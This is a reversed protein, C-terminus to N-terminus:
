WKRRLLAADPLVLNAREALHVLEVRSHVKLKHRISTVHRDVTKVSRKLRQAISAMSLPERLLALVELERPTLVDLPGLDIFRSEHVEYEGQEAIVASQGARTAMLVTPGNSNAQGISVLCSEYQAGRRVFRYLIPLGSQEARLILGLLETAVDHPAVHDLLVDAVPATAADTGKLWLQGARNAFHLKGRSDVLLLNLEPIQLLAATLAPQSGICSAILGAATPDALRADLVSV